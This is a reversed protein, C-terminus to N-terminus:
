PTLLAGPKAPLSAGAVFAIGRRVVGSGARRRIGKVRLRPVVGLIGIQPALEAESRVSRDGLMLLLLLLGSMLAGGATGVAPFVLLRRLQRTPGTPIQPPDAVQFGLEQGTISASVDLRAQDLLARTREAENQAADFRRRLEIFQPDLVAPGFPSSGASARTAEILAPNAAAYRGLDESAKAALADTEKVRTEYFGIAVQAQAKRDAASKEKFASVIATVVQFALDPTAARFSVQLLHDGAPTVELGEAVIRQVERQGDASLLYPALSTRRTVNALFTRSRLTENLRNAQNQAPTLYVNFDDRFSLYSAREVWIGATAQYPAPASFVVATVLLPVVVIPLLILLWHRFFIESMRASM